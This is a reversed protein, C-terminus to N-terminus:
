SEFEEQLTAFTRVLKRIRWFEKNGIAGRKQALWFCCFLFIKEEKIKAGGLGM